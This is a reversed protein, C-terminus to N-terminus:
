SLKIWRRFLKRNWIFLRKKISKSYIHRTQRNKKSSIKFLNYFNNHINYLKFYNNSYEQLFDKGKESHSNENLIKIIQEENTNPYQEKVQGIIQNIKANVIETNQKNQNSITKFLLITFILCIIILFYIYKKGQINRSIKM